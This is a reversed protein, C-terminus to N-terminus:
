LGLLENVAAVIEPYMEEEPEMDPHEFHYALTGDRDVIALYDYGGLVRWFNGDVDDHVVPLSHAVSCREFDGPDDNSRSIFLGVVNDGWTEAHAAIM